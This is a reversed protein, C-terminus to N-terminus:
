LFPAFIGEQWESRRDLLVYFPCLKPSLQGSKSILCFPSSVKLMFPQRLLGLDHMVSVRQAQERTEHDMLPTVQVPSQIRCQSVDLALRFHTSGLVRM